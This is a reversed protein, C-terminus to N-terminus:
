GYNEGEIKKHESEMAFKAVVTFQEMGKSGSVYFPGSRLWSHAIFNGDQDKAAGLYLTSDIQRWKLMKQGAISKVLCQSEWFTYRSM